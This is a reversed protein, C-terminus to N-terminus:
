FSQTRDIGAKDLINNEFEVAPLYGSDLIYAEFEKLHGTIISIGVILFIIGIVKKFWGDPDALVNIKSVFKQGILAITLLILALGLAYAILNIFGTLFSEPNLVTVLIVAFTPSCSTFVPGLALGMLIDGTFSEKKSAKALWANSKKSASIKHTINAWVKPFVMTLAFGILILGTFWNWFTQPINLYDTGVRILLTFIVVSVALSGTIIYPKLKSRTDSVTGGVIVPLLPLICPALVTLLGAFFSVLILVM